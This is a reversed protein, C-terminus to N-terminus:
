RSQIIEEESTSLLSYIKMQNNSLVNEPAKAVEYDSSNSSLIQEPTQELQKFRPSSSESLFSSKLLTGNHGNSEPQYEAEEEVLKRKASIQKAKPSASSQNIMKIHLDSSKTPKM